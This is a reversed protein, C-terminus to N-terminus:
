SLWTTLSARLSAPTFPKLVLGDPKADEPPHLGTLMVVPVTATRADARLRRLVEDGGMGPLGVDLLILDPADSTLAELADRGDAFAEVKCDPGEISLAVLTRVTQEDDIVLM